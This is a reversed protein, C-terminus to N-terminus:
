DTGGRVSPRVSPSQEQREQWRAGTSIAYSSPAPSLVSAPRCASSPLLWGLFGPQSPLTDADAQGRRVSALRGETGEATHAAGPAAAGEGNCESGGSM